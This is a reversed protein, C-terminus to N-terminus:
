KKNEEMELSKIIQGTAPLHVKAQVELETESFLEDWYAKMEKWEKPHARHVSVGFGYIDANLTRATEFTDTIQERIQNQALEVLYPMLDKFSMGEFGRLEGIGLIADVSLTVRVGGDPRLSVDRKTELKAINFVARGLDSQVVVGCREVDGMAWISGLVESNSLRGIMKDEKFVALGEIRLEQKGDKENLDAIPAVPSFTAERLRSVFDLIRVKYYPSVSYMDQMARALYMGSIEEQDLKASLVKEGRGGAVMVLVEMRTEQDRLFLDIRDEIGQEALASGLLLVQNHQLLLDRSSDRNLEMLGEMMTSNTTKLLITSNRQSDSKGPEASNSKTKGIQVTIDMQGPDHAKDLAVGTVIFLADLEQNDWCGSLLLMLAPLMFAATIRRIWQKNM